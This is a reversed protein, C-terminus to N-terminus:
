AWEAIKIYNGLKYYKFVVGTGYMTIFKEINQM